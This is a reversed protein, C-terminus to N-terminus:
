PILGKARDLQRGLWEQQAPNEPGFHGPTSWTVLKNEYLMVYATLLGLREDPPLLEDAYKDHAEAVMRLLNAYDRLRAATTPHNDDPNYDIIHGQYFGPKDYVDLRFRWVFDGAPKTANRLARRQREQELDVVDNM